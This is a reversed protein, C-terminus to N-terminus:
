EASWISAKAPSFPKTSTINRSFSSPWRASMPYHNPSSPEGTGIVTINKRESLLLSIRLSNTLVTLPIDPLQVALQIATTSADLVIRDNPELLRAAAAAISQKEGAHVAERLEHSTETSQAQARVAGGYSRLLHGESELRDLDRRITEDTVRCLQSLDAVRVSGWENVLRLIHQYREAALM